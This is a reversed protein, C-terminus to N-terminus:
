DEKKINIEVDAPMSSLIHATLDKLYLEKDETEDLNEVRSVYVRFGLNVLKMKLAFIDPKEKDHEPRASIIFVDCDEYADLADIDLGQAQLPTDMVRIRCGSDYDFVGTKETKNFEPLLYDHILVSKGNGKSGTLLMATKRRM